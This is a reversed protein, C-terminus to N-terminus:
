LGLPNVLWLKFSNAFQSANVRGDCYEVFFPFQRRNAVIIKVIDSTSLNVFNALNFFAKTLPVKNLEQQLTDADFATCGNQRFNTNLTTVQSSTLGSATITEQTYGSESPLPTGTVVTAAVATQNIIDAITESETATPIGEGASEEIFVDTAEGIMTRIVLLMIVVVAFVLLTTGLNM